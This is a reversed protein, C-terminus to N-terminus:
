APRHASCGTYAGPSPSQQQRTAPSSFTNLQDILERESMKSGDDFEAMLMLSLIDEREHAIPRLENIKDIIRKEYAARTRVFRDWPPWMSHQLAGAFMFSPHLSAMLDKVLQSFEDREEQKDFGFVASLIVELSIDQGINLM